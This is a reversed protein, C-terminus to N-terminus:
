YRRHSRQRTPRAHTVRGWAALKWAPPPNDERKRPADADLAVRAGEGQPGVESRLLDALAELVTRETTRDANNLMEALAKAGGTVRTAAMDVAAQLNRSDDASLQLGRRSGIFM